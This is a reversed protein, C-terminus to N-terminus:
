GDRRDYRKSSIYERFTFDERLRRKFEREDERLWYLLSKVARLADPNSRIRPDRLAVPVAERLAAHHEWWYKSRPSQAGNEMEVATAVLHLCRDRYERVTASRAAPRVTIGYRALQERTRADIRPSLEDAHRRTKRVSM